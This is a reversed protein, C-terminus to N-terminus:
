CGDQVVIRLGCKLLRKIDEEIGKVAKVVAEESGEENKPTVHHLIDVMLHGVREQLEKVKQDVAL